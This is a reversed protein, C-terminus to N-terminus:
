NLKFITNYILMGREMVAKREGEEEEEEKEDEEDEIVIISKM